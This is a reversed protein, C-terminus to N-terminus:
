SQSPSKVHRTSASMLDRSLIDPDLFVAHMDANFPHRVDWYNLSCNRQSTM